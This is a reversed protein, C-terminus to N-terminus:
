LTGVKFCVVGKFTAVRDILRSANGIVTRKFVPGRNYGIGLPAFYQREVPNIVANQNRRLEAKGILHCDPGPDVDGTWILRTVRM